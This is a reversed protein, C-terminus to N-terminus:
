SLKKISPGYIQFQEKDFDLQSYPEKYLESIEVAVHNLGNQSLFTQVDALQEFNANPSITVNSILTSPNIDVFDANGHSMPMQFKGSLFSSDFLVRVEKESKYEIGKTFFTEYFDKQSFNYKARNVYEVDRIQFERNAVIGEKLKKVNTTIRIGLQKDMKAYCTWMAESEISDKYFCCIGVHKRLKWSFRIREYWETAESQLVTESANPSLAKNSQYIENITQKYYHSPYCGEKKDSYKSPVSFYLKKNLVLEQFRDYPLYKTLEATDEPISGPYIEKWAM